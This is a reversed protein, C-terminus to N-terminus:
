KAHQYNSNENQTFFLQRVYPKRHSEFGLGFGLVIGEQSVVMFTKNKM